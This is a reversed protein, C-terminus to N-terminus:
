KTGLVRDSVMTRFAKVAEPGANKVSIQKDAALFYVSGASATTETSQPHSTVLGVGEQFLVISAGFHAPLTCQAGAPVEILDVQFEDFPPAYRRVGEAVPKGRLVEPPGTEYTLMECLIDTDRLKPTLGARVVNDSCAMAEVINGSVYAHPENAPLYVAEGPQLKVYNLLFACFVGVDGPYQAHLRLALAEAATRAEAAKAGLRAVLRELLGAVAGPDAKMVAAFVARLAGRRAGAEAARLDGALAASGPGVCEALEPVGELAAALEPCPVFCSMAEFETLALAMEPKHNPDKYVHPRAAHLAEARAKDPHAQISLATEVSLVKFLFPLDAGFRRVLPEGLLEPRGALFDKLLTGDELRSPANPHTGMWLEAYPLAEDVAAGGARALRAVESREAPQGWAYTQAACVVKWMAM